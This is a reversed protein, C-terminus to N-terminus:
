LEKGCGACEDHSKRQVQNEIFADRLGDNVDLVDFAYPDLTKGGNLCVNKYWEIRERNEAKRPHKFADKLDEWGGMGGADEAAPHGQGSLCIIKVDSPAGFQSNTGPTARGLLSLQHGWSDGHDYEYEIEAKDKWEPKEYVEALTIKTEAKSEEMLDDPVSDPNSWINLCTARGMSWPEDTHDDILSVNFDHMHSNTWGFAIQLVQHVKDFTLSPPLSLLRNIPPNASGSLTALILYNNASEAGPSSTGHNAKTATSPQPSAVRVEDNEVAMELKSTKKLGPPKRTANANRSALPATRSKPSRTKKQAKPM